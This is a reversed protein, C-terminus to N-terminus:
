YHKIEYDDDEEKDDKSAQKYANIVVTLLLGVAIIAVAIMVWPGALGLLSKVFGWFQNMNEETAFNLNM